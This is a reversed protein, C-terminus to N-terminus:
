FRSECVAKRFKAKSFAQETSMRQEMAGNCYTATGDGHVTVEAVIVLRGDEFTRYTYTKEKTM